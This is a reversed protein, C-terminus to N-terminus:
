RRCWYAPAFQRSTIWAALGAPAWGLIRMAQLRVTHLDIGAARTLDGDAVRVTPRRAGFGCRETAFRHMTRYPVVVGLRALKGHINTLV